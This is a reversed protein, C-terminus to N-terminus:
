TEQRLSTQRSPTRDEPEDAFRMVNWVAQEDLYRRTAVQEYAQFTLRPSTHGIQAAIWKPHRGAIAAFTAWTRRLSHPTIDPLPALGDDARNTDARVVARQLNRDRFRNDDRRKGTTTGFFYDAHGCPLGRSRRDTAYALLEGRLYLTMEVERVGAETKSDQVAFRSRPLDVNAWRLDLMESIRFGGLGLTALMARRGLGKYRTQAEQELQGAADLLSQFEDIELFTRPPKVRPLFRASRGGIRVPNRAILEYDVAQQLIQGLLTIMANISTNSLPRRRRQYTRGRRDTVSETLLRGRETALRITEAEQRLEDRFRDILAVDIRSLDCRGFFRRLYSLRWEYDVITNESIRLRKSNWWRAAFVRFSEEVQVGLEAMATVARDEELELRPPIWTGREIQQIIKELEIEARRQNWGEKDTGFSVKERRGYVYVRAGFTITTGDAWRWQTVEGTRARAM